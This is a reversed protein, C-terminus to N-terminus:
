RTYYNLMIVNCADGVACLQQEVSRVQSTLYSYLILAPIAVLLGAITTILAEAIGPAVAAIDASQQEGIKIFAQVLGWVTGFLGLLPSVSAATSLVTLYREEHHMMEDLTGNMTYQMHEWRGHSLEREGGTKSESLMRFSALNKAIFYGPLTGSLTSNIKVLSELSQADKLLDLARALQKKKLRVLILKYLFISWCIVSLALLILLVCWTAGDSQKILQWLSNGMLNEM